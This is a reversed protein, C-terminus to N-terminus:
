AVAEDLAALIESAVHRRGREIAGAGEFGLGCKCRWHEPRRGHEIGASSFMHQQEVSRILDVRLDTTM